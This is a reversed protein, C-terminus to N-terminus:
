RTADLDMRESLEVRAAYIQSGLMKDPGMQSDTLAKNDVMRQISVIKDYQYTTLSIIINARERRFNIEIDQDLCKVVEVLASIIKM